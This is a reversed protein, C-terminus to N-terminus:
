WLFPVLLIVPNNRPKEGHSAWKGRFILLIREHMLLAVHDYHKCLHFHVSSLLIVSVGMNIILAYCYSGVELTPFLVLFNLWPVWQPAMWLLSLPQRWKLAVVRLPVHSRACHLQQGHRVGCVPQESDRGSMFGTCSLVLSGLPDAAAPVYLESYFHTDSM